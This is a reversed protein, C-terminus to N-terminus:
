GSEAHSPATSQRRGNSGTSRTCELSPRSSSEAGNPAPWGADRNRSSATSWPMARHSARGRRPTGRQGSVTARGGGGVRVAGYGRGRLPAPARLAAFGCAAHSAAPVPFPIVTVGVRARLPFGQVRGLLRRRIVAGTGSGVLRDVRTLRLRRAQSRKLVHLQHRLALVELRLNARSRGADRLTLLFSVLVSMRCRKDVTAWLM